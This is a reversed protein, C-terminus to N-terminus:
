ALQSVSQVERKWEKAIKQCERDCRVNFESVPHGKKGVGAQLEVRTPHGDLLIFRMKKFDRTSRLANFQLVQQRDINQWAWNMSVRGITIMSDSFINGEYPIPLELIGQLMAVMETQNNTVMPSAETPYVRGSGVKVITGDQVFCWSFCGGVSSPNRGVLGGDVFLGNLLDLPNM